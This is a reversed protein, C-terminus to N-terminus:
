AAHTSDSSCFCAFRQLWIFAKCTGNQKNMILTMMFDNAYHICCSDIMLMSSTLSEGDLFESIKVINFSNILYADIPTILVSIWQTTNAMHM